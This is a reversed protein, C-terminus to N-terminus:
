FRSMGILPLPNNPKKDPNSKKLVNKKKCSRCFFRIEAEMADIELCFDGADDNVTIFGCHGCKLVIQM